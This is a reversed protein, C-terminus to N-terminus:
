KVLEKEMELAKPFLINNELHIHMHLDNVFEKLLNYTVIHTNCAEAPPTFHNTLAEIKAFRDGEHEHEAMMVSIPIGLSGPPLTVVPGAQSILSTMKRIRPFLVMEEKKMHLTLESASELFLRQIEMLEPFREGHKATLKELYPLIVPITSAVYRHHKNEIYDALMAAPWATFDATTEPKAQFLLKLERMVEETMINKRQCAEDISIKGKCCFDIGFKEFIAATRPDRAVVDGVKNEFSLDTQM